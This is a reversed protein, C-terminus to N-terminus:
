SEKSISPENGKECYGAVSRKGSGFSFVGSGYGQTVNGLTAPNEHNHTTLGLAWSWFQLVVGQRSDAVTYEIYIRM